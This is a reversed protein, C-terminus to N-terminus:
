AGGLMTAIAAMVAAFGVYVVLLTAFYRRPPRMTIAGLGVALVWMWWLGFLEISGLLRAVWTGEDALPVLASLTFPSTLSERLYHLPTGVLQGLALPALAHVSVALGQSTSADVGDRRALLILGMAVAFTVPPTLLLRGSGVFYASLPPNKQLAEYSADDVTGGFSEVRRVQEDVLAQRGVDSNLLLLTCAAWVALIAIWPLAWAPDAAVQAMTSYPRVLVQVLRRMLGWGKKLSYSLERLRTERCQELGSFVM